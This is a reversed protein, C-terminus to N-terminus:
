TTSMGAGKATVVRGVRHGGNRLEQVTRLIDPWLRLLEGFRSLFGQLLKQRDDDACDPNLDIPLGIDERRLHAELQAEWAGIDQAWMAPQHQYVRLRHECAEIYGLLWRRASRRLYAAFEDGGLRGCEAFHRGIVDARNPVSASSPNGADTLLIRIVDYLHLRTPLGIGGTRHGSVHLVALPVYGVYSDPFWRQITAGFVTDEGRGCPVFPPLPLRNDLATATTTMVSAVPSVVPQHVGRVVHCCSYPSGVEEWHKLFRKRIEGHSLMFLSPEPIGSSGLVGSVTVLVRGRNELLDCLARGASASLRSRELREGSTCLLDTIPRGLLAEHSALLDCPSRSVSAVAARVSSAFRVDLHADGFAAPLVTQAGERLDGVCCVSDDDCSLVEDGITHLLLANRNAGASAPLRLTHGLAFTVLEPPVGRASLLGGYRRKEEAGAYWVECGFRRSFTALWDRCAARSDADTTDDMVALECRRGHSRLHHAYTSLCRRLAAPRECTIVGLCSIRSATPNHALDVGETNTMRQDM